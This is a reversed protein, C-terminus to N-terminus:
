AAHQKQHTSLRANTLKEVKVIRHRNSYQELGRDISKVRQSTRCNDEKGENVSRRKHTKETRSDLKPLSTVSSANLM